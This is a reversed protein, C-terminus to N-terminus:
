NTSLLPRRSDKRMSRTEHHHAQDYNLHCWCCLAKLNRDDDHGAVHDLHAITLVVRIRRVTNGPWRFLVFNGGGGLKCYTWRQLAVPYFAKTWYQGSEPSPTHVYVMERDPKGCQECRAGGLYKGDADLRGGARALIRPRTVERWVKGYLHRLEPRIPM